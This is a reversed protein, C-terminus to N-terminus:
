IFYYSEVLEKSLDQNQFHPKLILHKVVIHNKLIFGCINEKIQILKINEPYFEKWSLPSNTEAIIQEVQDLNHENVDVFQLGHKKLTFGYPCHVCASKCCTGRNKHFQSTFVTFGEPSLYSLDKSMFHM